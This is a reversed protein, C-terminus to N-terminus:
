AKDKLADAAQRLAGARKELRDAEELMAKAAVKWNPVTMVKNTAM